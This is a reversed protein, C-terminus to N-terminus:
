LLVYEQVCLIKHTHTHTLNSSEGMFAGVNGILSFLCSEPPFSGCKSDSMFVCCSETDSPPTM